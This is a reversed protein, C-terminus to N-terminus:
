ALLVEWDAEDEDVSTSATEFAQYYYPTIEEHVARMIAVQERSDSDDGWERQEPQLRETSDLGTLFLVAVPARGHSATLDPAPELLRIQNNEYIAKVAIM